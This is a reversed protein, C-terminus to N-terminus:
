FTPEGVTQWLSATWSQWVGEGGQSGMGASIGQDGQIRPFAGWLAKRVSSPGWFGLTASVPLAPRPGYLLKFVGLCVLVRPSLPQSVIDVNTPLSPPFAFFAKGLACLSSLM